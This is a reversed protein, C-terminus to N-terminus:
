KPTVENAIKELLRTYSAPETEFPMAMAAERTRSDQRLIARLISDESGAEPKIGQAIAVWEKLQSIDDGLKRDELM